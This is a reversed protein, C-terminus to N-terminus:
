AHNAERMFAGGSVMLLGWRMSNTDILCVGHPLFHETAWTRLDMLNVWTARRVLEGFEDGRM